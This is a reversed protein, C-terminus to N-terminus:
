GAHDALLWSIERELLAVRAPSEYSTKNHGLGDYVARGAHALGAIENAWVMPHRLQDHAHDALVTITEATRLYSYREDYVAIDALGATIPHDDTYVTITTDDRPPHMSTGRVWRGGLRHEWADITPFTAAGTHVGLLPRGSDLYGLLGREAAPPLTPDHDLTRPDGLNGILLDVGPLGAGDDAALRDEIETSVEVHHGLRTAIEAIAASTEGFPHWPDAYRGAGSLLLIMAM